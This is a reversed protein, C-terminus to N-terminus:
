MHPDQNSFGTTCLFMEASLVQYVWSCGQNWWENVTLDSALLSTVLKNLAEELGVMDLVTFITNVEYNVM